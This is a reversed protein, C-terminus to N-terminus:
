RNEQEAAAMKTAIAQARHNLYYWEYGNIAALLMIAVLIKVMPSGVDGIEIAPATAASTARKNRPKPTGLLNIRIM